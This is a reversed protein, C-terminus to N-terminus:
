EREGLQYIRLETRPRKAGRQISAEWRVIQRDDIWVIGNLADGILKQLNDVDAEQSASRREFFGVEIAVPEGIPDFGPLADKVIWGLLDEAEVTRAPTYARGTITNVRPRGKPIPNGPIVLDCVLLRATV